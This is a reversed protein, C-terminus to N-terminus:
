NQKSTKVFVELTQTLHNGTCSYPDTPRGWTTGRLGLFWPEVLLLSLFPLSMLHWVSGTQLQPRSDNGWKSGQECGERENSKKSIAKTFHCCVGFSGQLDRLPAGRQSYFWLLLGLQHTGSSLFTVCVACFQQTGERLSCVCSNFFFFFLICKMIVIWHQLWIRQHRLSPKNVWVNLM